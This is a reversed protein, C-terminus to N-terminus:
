DLGESNPKMLNLLTDLLLEAFFHCNQVLFFARQRSCLRSKQFAFLARKGDQSRIAKEPRLHFEENGNFLNHARKGLALWHVIIFEVSPGHKQEVEVELFTLLFLQSSDRVLKVRREPVTQSGVEAGASIPGAEILVSQLVGLLCAKEDIKRLSKRQISLPEKLEALDDM